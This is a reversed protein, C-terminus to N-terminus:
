ESVAIPDRLSLFRVASILDFGVKWGIQGVAVRAQIDRARRLGLSKSMRIAVSVGACEIM